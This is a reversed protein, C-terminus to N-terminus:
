LEAKLREILRMKFELNENLQDVLLDIDKNQPMPIMNFLNKQIKKNQQLMMQHNHLNPKPLELKNMLHSYYYEANTMGSQMKKSGFNKLKVLTLRDLKAKKRLEHYLKTMNREDYPRGNLLSLVLNYDNIIHHFHYTTEKWELLLHAVEKNLHISKKVDTKYLLILQTNTENYGIGNFRYIIRSNDIQQLTNLNIRKLVKDSCIYCKDEKIMTDSIYINDWTLGLIESINLGTSFLLHLFVYLKSDDCSMFIKRVDDLQWEKNEKQKNPNICVLSHFHNSDIISNAVLYDFSSKMLYICQRLMTFPVFVDAKQHRKGIAPCKKLDLFFKRVYTEDIDEIRKNKLIKKLYNNILGVNSEYRSISWLNLGMKACYQYLFDVVRSNKNVNIKDVFIGEEIEKKRNIALEYDYYTEWKQKSNGQADEVQYIVSYAKRRKTIIAM